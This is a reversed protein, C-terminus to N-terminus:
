VRPWAQAPPPPRVKVCNRLLVDVESAGSAFVIGPSDLLKINKDLQVLQCNPFPRHFLSPLTLPTRLGRLVRGARRGERRCADQEM